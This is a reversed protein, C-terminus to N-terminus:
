FRDFIDAFAPRHHRMGSLWPPTRLASLARFFVTVGTQPTRPTRVGPTHPVLYLRWTQACPVPYVVWYVCAGLCWRRRLFVGKAACGQAFGLRSQVVLFPSFGPDGIRITQQTFLSLKPAFSATNAVSNAPATQAVRGLVMCAGVPYATMPSFTWRSCQPLVTEPLIQPLCPTKTQYKPTKMASLKNQQMKINFIACKKKQKQTWKDCGWMKM